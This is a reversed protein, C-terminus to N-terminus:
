QSRGLVELVGPLRTPHGRAALSWWGCSDSRSSGGITSGSGERSDVGCRSWLCVGLFPQPVTSQYYCYSCKVCTQLLRHAFNNIKNVEIEYHLSDNPGPSLTLVDDKDVTYTDVKYERIATITLLLKDTICYAERKKHRVFNVSWEDSRSQLFTIAEKEPDHSVTKLLRQVVSYEPSGEPVMEYLNLTM